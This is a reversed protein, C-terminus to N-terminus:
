SALYMLGMVLGAAFFSLWVLGWIRQRDSPQIGDPKKAAFYIELLVLAMGVGFAIAGWKYM